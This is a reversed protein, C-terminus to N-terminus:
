PNMSITRKKLTSQHYSILSLHIESFSHMKFECHVELIIECTSYEWGKM